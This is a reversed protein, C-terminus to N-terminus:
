WTSFGGTFAALRDDQVMLNLATTERICWASGYLIWVVADCQNVVM